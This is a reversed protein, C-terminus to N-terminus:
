GIFASKRVAEEPTTRAKRALGFLSEIRDGAERQAGLPADAPKTVLATHKGRRKEALLARGCENAALLTTYSPLSALLEERVSTLSFLIARRLKADTYRKTRLSEFWEEADHASRALSCLRSALGGGTEAIGELAAPTCLRFYLLVAADMMAPDTLAGNEAATRLIAAAEPPMYADLTQYEGRAMAARLATASPLEGDNLATDRYAAGERRVTAFTM